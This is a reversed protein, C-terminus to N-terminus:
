VCLRSPRPPPCPRLSPFHLLNGFTCRKLVTASGDPAPRLLRVERRITDIEVEPAAPTASSQMLGFGALLAIISLILKFLMVDSEWSSGPALWLGVAALALSAGVLRQAGRLVMRGGDVVRAPQLAAADTDMFEATTMM